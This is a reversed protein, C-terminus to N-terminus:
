PATGSLFSLGPHLSQNVPKTTQEKSAPIAPPPTLFFDVRDPQLSIGSARGGTILHTRGSRLSIMRNLQPPFGTLVLALNDLPQAAACYIGIVYREGDTLVTTFVPADAPEVRVPLGGGAYEALRRLAAAENKGTGWAGTLGPAAVIVKGKGAQALTIAPEGNELVALVTADAEAKIPQRFATLKASWGDLPERTGSLAIKETVPKGVAAVKALGSMLPARISAGDLILSGGAVVYDRLLAANAESLTPNNPVLIVKYPYGLETKLHKASIVNAPIWSLARVFQFISAEYRSGVGGPAQTEGREMGAFFADRDRLVGAFELPWARAAFADLGTHAFLDFADRAGLGPWPSCIRDLAFYCLSNAGCMVQFNLNNEVMRRNDWGCYGGIVFLPRRNGQAGRAYKVMSNLWGADNSYLDLAISSFSDALTELDHFGKMNPGIVLNNPSTTATVFVNSNNERAVKSLDAMLRNYADMLLRFMARQSPNALNTSALGEFASNMVPAPIVGADADAPGDLIASLEDKKNIADPMEAGYRKKFDAREAASFNTHSWNWSGALFLRRQDENFPYYGGPGWSWEDALWVADAGRKVMDRLLTANLKPGPFHGMGMGRKHCERILEDFLPPAPKGDMGESPELSKLLSDSFILYNGGLAQAEEVIRAASEGDDRPHFRAGLLHMRLFERGLLPVRPEIRTFPQLTGTTVIPPCKWAIYAERCDEASDTGAIYLATQGPAAATVSYGHALTQVSLRSKPRDFFWGVGQRRTEDLLAFWGERVWKKVEDYRYSKADYGGTYQIPMRKLGEECEYCLVDNLTDGGPLWYGWPQRGSPNAIHLVPSGAYLSVTYGSEWGGYAITKRLPGDELLRIQAGAPVPGDFSSYYNSTYLPSFAIPSASIQNFEAGAPKVLRWVPYTRDRGATKTFEAQLRHNVLRLTSPGDLAQLCPDPPRPLPRDPPKEGFYVFLPIQAGPDMRELLFVVEFSRKGSDIVRVQVPAEPGNPSIVRISGPDTGAPFDYFLSAAQNLRLLGVPETVLISLRSRCADIQWPVGPMASLFLPNPSVPRYADALPTTKGPFDPIDKPVASLAPLGFQEAPQDTQKLIADLEDGISAAATMMAIAWIAERM